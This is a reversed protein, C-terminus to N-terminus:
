LFRFLNNELFKPICINMLFPLGHHNALTAIAISFPSANAGSSTDYNYVREGSM